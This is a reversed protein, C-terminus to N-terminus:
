WRTRLRPAWCGEIMKENGDEHVAYLRLGGQRLHEREELYRREAKSQDTTELLVRWEHSSAGGHRKIIWATM